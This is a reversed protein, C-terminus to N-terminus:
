DLDSHQPLVQTSPVAAWRIGVIEIQHRLTAVTEKVESKSGRSTDIHFGSIEILTTDNDSQGFAAASLLAV